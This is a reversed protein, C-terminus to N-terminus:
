LAVQCAHDRRLNTATGANTASVNCQFPISNSTAKYYMRHNLRDLEIISQM